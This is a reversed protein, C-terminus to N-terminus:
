VESQQSSPELFNLSTLVKTRDKMIPNLILKLIKPETKLFVLTRKPSILVTVCNSKEM